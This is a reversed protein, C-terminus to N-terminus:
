LFSKLVSVEKRFIVPILYNTKARKMAAEGSKSVINQNTKSAVWQSALVSSLINGNANKREKVRAKEM